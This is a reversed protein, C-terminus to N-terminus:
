VTGEPIRSVFIARGFVLNFGDSNGHWLPRWTQGHVIKERFAFGAEGENFYENGEGKANQQGRGGGRGNGKGGAGFLEGGAM